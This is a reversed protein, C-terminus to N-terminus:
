ATRNGITGAARHEVCIRGNAHRTQKMVRYTRTVEPRFEDYSLEYSIYIALLIACAMGLALGSLNILSYGPHRLLNRIAITLYNKGLYLTQKMFYYTHLTVKFAGTM